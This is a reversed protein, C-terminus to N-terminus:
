NFRFSNLNFHFISTCENNSPPLVLVLTSCTVTTINADCIRRCILSAKEDAKTVYYLVKRGSLCYTFIRSGELEVRRDIAADLRVLLIVLSRLCV